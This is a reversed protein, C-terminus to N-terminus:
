NGCQRSGHVRRPNNVSRITLRLREISTHVEQRLDDMEEFLRRGEEINRTLAKLAASSNEQPYRLGFGDRLPSASVWADLETKTAVVSGRLRGAPRRVPVGLDCEYRQVTRVGKGLYSAIEKWGNFIERQQTNAPM